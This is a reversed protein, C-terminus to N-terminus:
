KDNSYSFNFRWHIKELERHEKIYSTLLRNLDQRDLNAMAM